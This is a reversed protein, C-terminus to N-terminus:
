ANRCGPCGMSCSPVGGGSSGAVMENKDYLVTWCDQCVWKKGHEKHTAERLSLDEETKDCLECTNM